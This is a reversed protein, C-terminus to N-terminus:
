RFDKILVADYFTDGRAVALQRGDRSWSVWFIKDSKWNTLQRARGGDLPLTRLNSVGDTEKVVVLPIPCFRRM